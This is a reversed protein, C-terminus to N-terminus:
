ILLFYWYLRGLIGNPRFTAKQLFSKSSEDVELELWAEGPVKMEAYLILRGIEKNASVVRWWDLADGVVLETPSRRGRRLGVGGVMKDLVGRIIWAWNWTYWGNNGGIEWINKKVRESKIKYDLRREDVLCGFKPVEIKDLFDKDINGTIM